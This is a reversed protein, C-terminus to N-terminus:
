ARNGAQFVGVWVGALVILGGLLFLPTVAEKALWAGLVTAVLPFCLIAYSSASATWRSVLYVYLYLMVVSGGLILYILAAWVEFRAPLTWAEGAVLSAFLLFITNASLSFANIMAPDNRQSYTKLIVSGEASILAGAALALIYPIMDASGPQANVAVGMGVMAILGGLLVQMRFKEIKHAIALLFTFLPGMSLLITALGAPVKQLGWYLLAFGVGVSLFGNALMLFVDQRSPLKIKRWWVIGWFILSSFIFRLAAGWFPPLELNGFRIAVSNAGGLLVVMLFAIISSVDPKPKTATVETILNLKM